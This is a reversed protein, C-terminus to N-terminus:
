SENPYAKAIIDPIGRQHLKLNVKACLDIILSSLLSKLDKPGFVGNVFDSEFLEYTKYFIEISGDSVVTIKKDLSLPFFICKMLKMIGCNPDGPYCYSKRINEEITKANDEFCIKNKPDSASMKGKQSLSIVPTMIYSIYNNSDHYHDKSFGFIKRQDIGGLELHLKKNSFFQSIFKEDVAQMIPYLLSGMLPDKDQKVVESGAKRCATIRTKSVMQLVEMNYDSSLQFESGRVFKIKSMDAGCVELLCTLTKEYYSCRLEMLKPPTKRMDIVSHIDALLIICECGAVSLDRIKMCPVLYGMHIKGTPAFGIYANLTGNKKIISDIYNEGIIEQTNQCILKKTDM